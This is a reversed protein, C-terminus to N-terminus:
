VVVAERNYPSTIYSALPNGYGLVRPVWSAPRYEDDGVICTHPSGQGEKTPPSIRVDGIGLLFHTTCGERRVGKKRKGKKRVPVSNRRGTSVVANPTM